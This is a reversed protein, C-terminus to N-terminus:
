APPFYNMYTWMAASDVTFSWAYEVQGPVRPGGQTISVTYTGNVLPDKPLLVIAGRSGLINRALDQWKSETPWTTYNSADMECFDVDIGDRKLSSQVPPSFNGGALCFIPQGAPGQYGGQSRADPFENCYTTFPSTSGEAPWMVPFKPQVNFDLGAQTNLAQVHDLYGTNATAHYSGFGVTKLRPDIFEIGHFVDSLWEWVAQNDDPLQHLVSQAAATVAAPPANPASSLDHTLMTLNKAEYEAVSRDAASLAPDPYVVPLNAISRYSNVQDLWRWDTYDGRWNPM